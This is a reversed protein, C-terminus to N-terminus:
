YVQKPEGKNGQIKHPYSGGHGQAHEFWSGKAHSDHWSLKLLHRSPTEVILFTTRMGDMWGDRAMWQRHITYGREQLDQTGAKALEQHYEIYEKPFDRFGQRWLNMKRDIQTYDM